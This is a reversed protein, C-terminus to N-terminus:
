AARLRNMGAEIRGTKSHRAQVGRRRCSLQQSVDDSPFTFRAAFIRAIHPQDMSGGAFGWSDEGNLVRESPGKGSEYAAAKM